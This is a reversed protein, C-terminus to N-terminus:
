RAQSGSAAASSGTLSTTSLIALPQPPGRCLSGPRANWLRSSIIRTFPGAPSCFRLLRRDYFFHDRVYATPTISRRATRATVPNGANDRLDVKYGHQRLRDVLGVADGWDPHVEMVLQDVRELWGLDESAGFVAFEGGEIDAKLLGIRDIRTTPWSRPCQSAELGSCRAMRHQRGGATTPSYGSPRGPHRPVALSRTEVHVRAAIGNHAALGRIVPAFGQQAEVAVVQAGAMAAWVSFLGQNAGLDVVWGARPMVLGTRLYVNRCYM